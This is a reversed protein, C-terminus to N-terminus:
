ASAYDPIGVELVLRETRLLSVSLCARPILASCPLSCCYIGTTPSQVVVEIIVMKNMNVSPLVASWVWHRIHM